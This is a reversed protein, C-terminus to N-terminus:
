KAIIIQRSKRNRWRILGFLIIFLAPGFMNTYKIFPRVDESTEELTRPAIKKSRISLLDDDQSLWDVANLGLEINGPIAGIVSENIFDGDGVLGPGDGTGDGVEWGLM